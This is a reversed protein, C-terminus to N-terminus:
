YNAPVRLVIEGGGKGLDGRLSAIEAGPSLGDLKLPQWETKGIDVITQDPGFAYFGKPLKADDAFAYRAMGPSLVAAAIVLALSAAVESRTMEAEGNREEGQGNCCRLRVDSRFVM